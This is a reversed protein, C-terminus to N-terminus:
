GVFHPFEDIIALVISLLQCKPANNAAFCGGFISKKGKGFLELHWTAVEDM